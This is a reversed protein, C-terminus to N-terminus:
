NISILGNSFEKDVCTIENWSYGVQYIPKLEQLLKDLLLIKDEKSLDELKILIEEM